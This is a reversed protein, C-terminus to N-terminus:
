LACVKEQVSARARECAAHASRSAALQEHLQQAESVAVKLQERLQLLPPIVFCCCWGPAPLVIYSFLRVARATPSSLPEYRSLRKMLRLELLQVIVFVHGFGNHIGFPAM